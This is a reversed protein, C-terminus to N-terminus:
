ENEALSIHILTQVVDSDLLVPPTTPVFGKNKIIFENVQRELERMPNNRDKDVTIIKYKNKM